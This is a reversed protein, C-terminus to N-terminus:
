RWMLPFYFIFGRWEYAGIDCHAFQPRSVGRHDTPLCTEDDGADIAPSNFQLAHTRTRGGNDALPALWPDVALNAGSGLLTCDATNQIINNGMLTLSGSCDAGTDATNGAVITNKITVLDYNNYIYIGGGTSATNSYITSNTITIVGVNLIGGGDFGAANNGSITSNRITIAGNSNYIGGGGDISGSENGSITSNDIVITSGDENDIGGAWLDGWNGSITSNNIVITSGGENYIGGGMDAGNDSITCDEIVLTGAGNSLIAGGYWGWSSGNRMTVGSITITAGNPVIQFIGFNNAYGGGDIITNVAGAGVITLDGDPMINLYDITLTYVGAPLNITDTGAANNAACIAERLSFVGDPGPTTPTVASCGGPVDIVDNVTGVSISAAQVALVPLVLGSLGILVVVAAFLRISHFKIKTIMTQRRQLHFKFIAIKSRKSKKGGASRGVGLM